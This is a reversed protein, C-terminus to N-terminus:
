MKMYSLEQMLICENVTAKTTQKASSQQMELRRVTVAFHIRGANLERYLPFYKM